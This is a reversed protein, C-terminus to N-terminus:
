IRGRPSYAGWRKWLPSSKRGFKIKNSLAEARKEQALLPM